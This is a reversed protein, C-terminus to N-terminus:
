PRRGAASVILGIMTGYDLGGAEAAACFGADSALCPNANIELVWPTGAADLRIDVRAYGRLGFISWCEAALDRIRGALEAPLVPFVRRTAQYEVADPLWKAAYGVIKPKGPAYDEFEIEAIPLVRPRGDMELISVNFERGDVFREAFWDGGFTRRSQEIRRRIATSGNVVCGDDMGLSAHEWVSKVIWTGGAVSPAEAGAVWDPTAIGHRRLWRKALLKHSSLHLAAADCGTTPVGHRELLAPVAAILAGNGGLSEVLNFALTPALADIRALLAGLDLGVAVREVQRGAALLAESIEDAQVLADLEDPRADADFREHLLAVTGGAM